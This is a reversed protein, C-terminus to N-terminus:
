KLRRIQPDAMSKRGQVMHLDWGIGVGVGIVGAIMSRIFTGKYRANQGLKLLMKPIDSFGYRHIRGRQIMAALVTTECLFYGLVIGALSTLLVFVVKWKQQKGYLKDYGRLTLMGIFVGLVGIAWIWDDMFQGYFSTGLVAGLPIGGLAGACAGLFAGLFGTIYDGTDWYRTCKVEMRTKYAEETACNDDMHLVALRGLCIWVGQGNLPEGCKSCYENGLFGYKEIIPFFWDVFKKLYEAFRPCSRFKVIIGEKLINFDVIRYMQKLNVEMLENECFTKIVAGEPAKASIVMQKCSINELFSVAYGKYFGYVIDDDIKMDHENAIKRLVYSIM